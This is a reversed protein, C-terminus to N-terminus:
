TLVIFCLLFSNVIITPFCVAVTIQLFLRSPLCRAECAIKCTILFNIFFEYIYFKLIEYKGYNTKYIISKVDVYLFM